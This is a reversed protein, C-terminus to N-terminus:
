CPKLFGDLLFANSLLMQIDFELNWSWIRQNRKGCFEEKSVQEHFKKKKVFIGECSM